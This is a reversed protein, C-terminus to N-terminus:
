PSPERTQQRFWERFHQRQEVSTSLELASELHM